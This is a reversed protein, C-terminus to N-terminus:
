LTLPPPPPPPPALPPPAVPANDGEFQGEQQVDTNAANVVAHKHAKVPRPAKAAAGSAYMGLGALALAAVVVSKHM